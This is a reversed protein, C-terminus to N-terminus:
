DKGPGYNRITVQGDLQFRLTSGPSEVGYDTGNAAISLRRRYDLGSSYYCRELRCADAKDVTAGSVLGNVVNAITGTTGKLVDTLGGLLGGAGVTLGPLGGPLFGDDSVGPVLAVLNKISTFTIVVGRGAEVPECSPFTITTWTPTGALTKEIISKYAILRSSPLGGPGAEYVSILLVEGDGGERRIPLSISSITYQVAGAPLTPLVYQGLAGEGGVQFDVRAVGSAYSTADFLTASQTSYAPVDRTRTSVSFSRVDGLLETTTNNYTSRISAGSTGGWSYRVREASGDADRDPLIMEVSTGGTATVATATRLDEAIVGAADIARSARANRDEGGDIARTTIAIAGGMAGILIAAIAM